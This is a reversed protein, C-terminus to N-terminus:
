QIGVDCGVGPKCEIVASRYYIINHKLLALMVTICLNQFQCMFLNYTYYLFIIFYFLSVESPNEDKHMENLHKHINKSTRKEVMKNARRQVQHDSQQSFDEKDEQFTVKRRMGLRRGKSSSGEDVLVEADDTTMTKCCNEAHTIIDMLSFEKKCHPCLELEKVFFHTKILLINSNSTSCVVGKM